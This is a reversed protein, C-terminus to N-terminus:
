VTLLFNQGNLSGSYDGIRVQITTLTGSSNPTIKNSLTYQVREYGNISSSYNTFFTVQAFGPVGLTMLTAILLAFRTVTPVCKRVTM